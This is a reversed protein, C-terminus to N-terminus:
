ILAVYAVTTLGWLYTTLIREYSREASNRSSSTPLSTTTADTDLIRDTSIPLIPLSTSFVLTEDGGIVMAGTQASAEVGNITADSGGPSLTVGDLVVDGATGSLELATLIQGGLTVVVEAEVNIESSSLLVTHTGLVLESEAASVVTGDITRDPGGPLLTAGDVVVDGALGPVGFVTFTQGGLTVVARASASTATPASTFHRTQTEDIVLGNPAASFEVGDATIAPGGPSLTAGAVLLDGSSQGDLRLATFTESEATIQIEDPPPQTGQLSIASSGDVLLGASGMTMVAGDLTIAAGGLSFTTGDMEVAVGAGSVQTATYMHGAVQFTVSNVASNSGTEEPSAPTHETPQPMVSPLNTVSPDPDIDTGDLILSGSAVVATHTVGAFTFIDTHASTELSGETRSNAGTAILGADANQSQARSSSVEIIVSGTAVSVSTNDITLVAGPPYTTGGIVVNKPDVPDASIAVTGMSPVPEAPRLTSRDVGGSPGDSARDSQAPSTTSRDGSGSAVVSEVSEATQASTIRTTPDGATGSQTGRINSTTDRTTPEPPDPGRETSLGSSATVSEPKATATASPGKTTAPSGPLASTTPSAEATVTTLAKPPDYLGHLDLSCTAWAPDLTRIQPPVALTPAYYSGVVVDCPDEYYVGNVYDGAGLLGVTGYYGCDAMCNYAQYPVPSNLDPFNFQTASNFPFVAQCMSYVDSSELTIMQGTHTSGVVGCSDTAYATEVSIYVRNQYFTKGDTVIYSGTM